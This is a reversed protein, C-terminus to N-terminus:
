IGQSAVKKSSLHNEVGAGALLIQWFLCICPNTCARPSAWIDMSVGTYFSLQLGGLSLYPLVQAEQFVLLYSLFLNYNPSEVCHIQAPVHASTVLVLGTFSLECSNELHYNSLWPMTCRDVWLWWVLIQCYLLEPKRAGKTLYFIGSGSHCSANM